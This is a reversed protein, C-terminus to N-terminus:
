LGQVNWGSAFSQWADVEDAALLQGPHRTGDRLTLYAELTGADLIRGPFVMGHLQRQSSCRELIPLLEAFGAPVGDFVRPSLVSLGVYYFQGAATPKIQAPGQPRGRPTRASNTGSGFDETFEFATATSGTEKPLLYLLAGHSGEVLNYPAAGVSQAGSAVRTDTGTQPVFITDPNILVFPKDGLQNRNAAIGGATGLIAPQENSVEVKFHPFGEVYRIIAEPLYHVNIIADTVGLRYLRFLAYGLLPVGGLPLMPKPTSETLAGMRKGFGAALLFGKM